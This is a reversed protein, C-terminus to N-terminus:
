FIIEKEYLKFAMLSWSVSTRQLVLQSSIKCVFGFLGSHPGVMFLTM